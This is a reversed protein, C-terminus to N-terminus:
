EDDKEIKALLAAQIWHIPHARTIMQPPDLRSLWYLWMDMYDVEDRLRFACDALSEYTKTYPNERICKLVGKAVLYMSQGDKDLTHLKLIEDKTM